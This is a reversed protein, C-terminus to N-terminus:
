FKYLLFINITSKKWINRCRNRILNINLTKLLYIRENSYRLDILILLKEM